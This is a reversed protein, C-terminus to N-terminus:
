SQDTQGFDKLSVKFDILKLLISVSDYENAEYTYTNTLLKQSSIGRDDLEFTITDGIKIGRDKKFYMEDKLFYYPSQDHNNRRMDLPTVIMEQFYSEISKEKVNFSLKM